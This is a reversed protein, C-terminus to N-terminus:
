KLTMSGLAATTFTIFKIWAVVCIPWVVSRFTSPWDSSSSNNDCRLLILWCSCAINIFMCLVPAYLHRRYLDLINLQRDRHLTSHRLLCLCFTLLTRLDNM